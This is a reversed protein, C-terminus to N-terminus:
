PELFDRYAWVDLDTESSGIRKRAELQRMRRREPSDLGYVRITVEARLRDDTSAAPSALIEGTTFDFAFYRQFDYGAHDPALLLDDWQDGKNSQCQHCCYYLNTWEYALFHFEPRYKPRFHEVPGGGSSRDALPYSDCFSCHGTTMNSLDDLIWDRASRGELEYWQFKASPNSARLAAWQQNWREANEVLVVPMAPRTAKRM